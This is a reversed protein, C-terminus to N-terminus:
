LTMFQQAPLFKTARLNQLNGKYENPHLFKPDYHLVQWVGGVQDRAEFVTPQYTGTKYQETDLVTKLAALGTPGAGIICITK